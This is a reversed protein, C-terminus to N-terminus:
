NYLNDRKIEYYDLTNKVTNIVSRPSITAGSIQDFEGGDNIVAWADNSTNSLSRKNFNTIWDSKDQDINDGLGETEQHEIIRVGSIVGDYSVGIALKIKGKYGPTSVPM